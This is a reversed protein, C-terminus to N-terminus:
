LKIAPPQKSTKLDIKYINKYDNTPKTEIDYVDYQQIYKDNDNEVNYKITEPKANTNEQENINLPTSANVKVDDYIFCDYISGGKLLCDSTKYENNCIDYYKITDDTDNMEFPVYSYPMTFTSYENDFNKLVTMPNELKGDNYEVLYISNKSNDEFYNGKCIPISGDSCKGEYTEGLSYSDNVNKLNSSNCIIEGDICYIHDGEQATIESNGVAIDSGNDKFTLGSIDLRDMTFAEYHKSWLLKVIVCLLIIYLINISM